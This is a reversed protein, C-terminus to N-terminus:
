QAPRTIAILKTVPELNRDPRRRESDQKGM